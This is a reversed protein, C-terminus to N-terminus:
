KPKNTHTDPPSLDSPSSMPIEDTHPARKLLNLGEQKREIEGINTPTLKKAHTEANQINQKSLLRLGSLDKTNINLQEAFSIVIGIYSSYYTIEPM